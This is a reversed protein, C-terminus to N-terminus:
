RRRIGAVEAAAGLWLAIGVWIDDDDVLLAELGLDAIGRDLPEVGAAEPGFARGPVGLALVQDPAIDRGVALEAIEVVVAVDGFLKVLWRVFRVAVREVELAPLDRCLARTQNAVLVVARQRRQGLLGIALREIARVVHDHMGVVLRDPKGVRAIARDADILALAGVGTRILGVLLLRDVPEVRLRALHGLDGILWELRVADGEAVVVLLDIDAVGARRM